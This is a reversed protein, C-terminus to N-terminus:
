VTMEFTLSRITQPWLFSPEEIKYNPAMGTGKIGIRIRSTEPEYSHSVFNGIVNRVYEIPDPLVHVIDIIQSNAAIQGTVRAEQKEGLMDRNLGFNSCIM